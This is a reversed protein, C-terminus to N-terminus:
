QKPDKIAAYLSKLKKYQEYKKYLQLFIKAYAKEAAKKEM